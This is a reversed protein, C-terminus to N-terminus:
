AAAARKNIVARKIDPGMAVMYVGMWDSDDSGALELGQPM